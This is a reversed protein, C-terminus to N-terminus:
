CLTKSENITFEINIKNEDIIKETFSANIFEYQKTIAINDIENLINNIRNSSYPKNKLDILLSNIFKFNNIDYDTPLNLRLNNFFFKKGADINYTLDFNDDELVHANTQSIKVNFYGENLYFNKM